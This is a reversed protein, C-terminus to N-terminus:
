INFLMCVFLYLIIDIYLFIDIIHYGTDTQFIGECMKTIYTGCCGSHVVGALESGIMM